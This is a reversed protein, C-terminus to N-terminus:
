VEKNSMRRKGYIAMGLMGFGLLVMTGPEPVVNGTVPDNIRQDWLSGLPPFQVTFDFLLDHGNMSNSNFANYFTGGTVDGYGIGKGNAPAQTSTVDQVITAPSGPQIGSVFDGKLLLTGGTIGTFQDVATRSSPGPVSLNVPTASAYLAFQGGVQEITFGNTGTGYAHDYLGYVIGYVFDGASQSWVNNSSIPDTVSSLSFVGWTEGPAVITESGTYAYSTDASKTFGALKMEIPGQYSGLGFGFSQAASMALMLVTLLIKKKM